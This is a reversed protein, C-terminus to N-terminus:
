EERFRKTFKALTKNEYRKAWQEIDIIQQYFREKRATHCAENMYVHVDVEGEEAPHNRGNEPGEGGSVEEESATAEEGQGM